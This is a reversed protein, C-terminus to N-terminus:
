YTGFQIDSKLQRNLSSFKMSWNFTLFLIMMRNNLAPFNDNADPTLKLQFIQSSYSMSYIERNITHFFGM